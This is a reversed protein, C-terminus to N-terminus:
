LSNSLMNLKMLVFKMHSVASIVAVPTVVISTAAVVPGIVLLPIVAIVNGVSLGVVSGGVISLVVHLYMRINACQLHYYIRIYSKQNVIINYIYINLPVSCINVYMKFIYNQYTYKIYQPQYPTSAKIIKCLYNKILATLVM